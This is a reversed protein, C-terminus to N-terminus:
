NEGGAVTMEGIRVSPSVVGALGFDLDDGVADIGKLVQELNGAVTVKNVPYVPEGNEIWIGSCGQSWDGTIPKFSSGMMGTLLLGRETSAIIQDLTRGGPKLYLNSPSVGGGWSGHGTTPLDLRRASELDTPHRRLVGGSVLELAKGPLGEGDCTRSGLGRPRHPDDMITIGAAAVQEGLADLLYSRKRWISRASICGFLMRLLASAVPAEFIVPFKGTPAERPDLQRVVRVAARRGITEPSDLDAFHRASHGWSDTVLQDGSDRGVLTLGLRSFTGELRRVFGNSTYYSIGTKGFSFSSGRCNEIRDDLAFGASETARALEIGTATDPAGHPDLLDLEPFERAYEEPEPLRHYEDPESLQALDVAERALRELDGPDVETTSVLGQRNGKFVRLSLGRSGAEKLVELEGLRVEAKFESSESLYIDAEQAGARLAAQLTAHAIRDFDNKM